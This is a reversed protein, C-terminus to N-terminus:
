FFVGRVLIIILAAPILFMVLPKWWNMVRYGKESANSDNKFNEFKWVFVTYLALVIAGLPMLINGSLYDDFDFINMGMITIDKWVNHALITPFGVIFVIAIGIWTAKVRDWKLLDELTTLVPEFYGIASLLAAFFVLTFFMMAFIIGGPMKDFLNSMTVFLLQKGQGPELGLAFIAPFMVFGSLLAACTDAVVVLLGDSPVNSDKELYSGYIFGGGSAIGISFFAQGLADLVTQGDIKSFDIKLYWKVGEMAGPLTVSRIALIILMVFLLPMLVNCVKEIGNKIGRASIFAVIAMCIATYITLEVPNAMFGDFAAKYQESTLGSLQGTATKVIYGFLWGMIQMYYTCIFFAALVGLWGFAVWPSGKKTLKRMGLINGARAKRGLAIEMTFVPIGILVCVTVYVLVFAGGGHTGTLYPFRWMNGLGIAFGAAAMIFAFRSGWAERQKEM